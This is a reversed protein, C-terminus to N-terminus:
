RLLQGYPRAAADIQPFSILRKPFVMGNNGDFVTFDDAEAIHCRASIQISQKYVFIILAPADCCCDATFQFLARSPFRDRYAGGNRCFGKEFVPTVMDNSFFIDKSIANKEGSILHFFLSCMRNQIPHTRKM